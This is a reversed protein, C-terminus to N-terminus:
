PCSQDSRKVNFVVSVARSNGQADCLRARLMHHCAQNGEGGFIAKAAFTGDQRVLSKGIPYWRDSFVELRVYWGNAAGNTRGSIEAVRNV